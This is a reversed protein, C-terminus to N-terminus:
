KTGKSARKTQKAGGHVCFAALPEDVCDKKRAPSYTRGYVILWLSFHAWHAKPVIKMLDQEIKEPTTNKSLGFKKAMRLVHTDVAIGESKGFAGGLVVNATKRAVGPLTILEALTQPVKGGFNKQVLKASAIIHKAKTKYFGTEHIDKEFIKQSARAYEGVTKYKKFLKKTVENVKKDTCQASLITAVLLEWANKHALTVEPNPFLKALARIMKKVRMKQALIDGTIETKSSMNKQRTELTIGSRAQANRPIFGRECLLATENKQSLIYEGL